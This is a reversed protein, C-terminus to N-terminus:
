FVLILVGISPAALALRAALRPVTPLLVILLLAAASVAGLWGVTGISWSEASSCALLLSVALTCWGLLRFRFADDASLDEARVMRHHRNMALSLATLASYSLLYALLTM